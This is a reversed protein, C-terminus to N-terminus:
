LTLITSKITDLTQTVSERFKTALAIAQNLQETTQPNDCCDKSIRIASTLETLLSEIEDRKTFYIANLLHSNKVHAIQTEKPEISGVRLESETILSTGDKYPEIKYSKQM